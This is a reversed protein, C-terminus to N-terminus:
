SRRWGDPGITGRLFVSRVHTAIVPLDGDPGASKLRRVAEKREPTDAMSELHLAITRVSERRSGAPSVADDLRDLLDNLDM